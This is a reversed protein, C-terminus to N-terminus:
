LGGNRFMLDSRQLRPDEPNLTPDVDKSNEIYFGKYRTYYGALRWQNKSGLFTALRIDDYSTLGLKEEQNRTQDSQFLYSASIGFVSAMLGSTARLNPKYVIDRRNSEDTPLVTFHFGPNEAVFGLALKDGHREVKANSFDPLLILLLIFRRLNCRLTM